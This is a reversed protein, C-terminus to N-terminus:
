KKDEHYAGEIIRPFKQPNFLFDFSAKWEKSQGTLFKSDKVMTFFWEFFELGQQRDFKETTVVERWRASVMKKRSDNVVTVMPLMPLIKNYMEIIEAVPCAPQAKPKSLPESAEAECSLDQGQDVGQDEGQDAHSDELPNALIRSDGSSPPIKSKSPKDIKQHSLWKCIEIYSDGEIQYRIITDVLQLENLWGDIKAKADDDYPFLLSSLMRSNGRLRGEDDALTFLMIFLLRADRSVKGMSESQPFEPKITRIRAM